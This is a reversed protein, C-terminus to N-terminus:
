LFVTFHRALRNIESEMITEVENVLQIYNKQIKIMQDVNNTLQHPHIERQFCLCDELYMLHECFTKVFKEQEYDDKDRMISQLLSEVKEKVLKTVKETKYAYTCWKMAEM